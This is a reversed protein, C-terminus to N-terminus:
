EEEEDASSKRGRPFARIGLINMAEQPFGPISLLYPASKEVAEDLIATAHQVVDERVLKEFTNQLLDPLQRINAAAFGSEGSEDAVAVKLECEEMEKQLQQFKETKRLYSPYVVALGIHALGEEVRQRASNLAREAAQPTDDVEGEIMLRLGLFTVLVDPMRRGRGPRAKLIIEPASIVGHRELIQALVVNFVEQRFSEM